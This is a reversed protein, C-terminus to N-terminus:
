VEETHKQSEVKCPEVSPKTKFSYVIQKHNGSHTLINVKLFIIHLHTHLPLFMIKVSILAYVRLVCEFYVKQLNKSTNPMLFDIKFSMTSTMVLNKPKGFKASLFVTITSLFVGWLFFYIHADYTDCHM